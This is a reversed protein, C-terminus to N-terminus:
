AVTAMVTAFPAIEVGGAPDGGKVIMVGAASPEFNPSTTEFLAIPGVNASPMTARSVGIAKSALLKVQGVVLQLPEEGIPM